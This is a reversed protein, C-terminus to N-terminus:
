DAVVKRHNRQSSGKTSTVRRNVAKIVKLKLQQRKSAENSKRGKKKPDAGNDIMTGSLKLAKLAAEDTDFSVYAQGNCRGTDGFKLLKCNVVKGCAKFLNTVDAPKVEFPLGSVFLKKSDTETIGRLKKKKQNRGRVTVKMSCDYIWHVPKMKNNCAQCVYDPPVAKSRKAKKAVHGEKKVQNTDDKMSEEEQTQFADSDIEENASEDVDEDKEDVETDGKEEEKQYVLGSFEAEDARRMQAESRLREREEEETPVPYMGRKVRKLMRKIQIKTYKIGNEDVKPVKALLDEKEQRKTKRSARRLEKEDKGERDESKRKKEKKEKSTTQAEVLPEGQNINEQVM